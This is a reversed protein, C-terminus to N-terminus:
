ARNPNRLTCSIGAFKRSFLLEEALNVAEMDKGTFSVGLLTENIQVNKYAFWEKLGEINKEKEERSNFEAFVMLM